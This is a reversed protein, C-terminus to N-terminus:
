ESVPIKVTFCTGKGLESNVGVTGGLLETLKKVIYLGLGAGEHLRTDSSDVQAFKEFILEKADDPIGIGTDTISFKMEHKEPFYHASIAVSGTDTFKIANNILNQLINRLKEADTKIVPLEPPYDWYLSIDKDRAWGFMVKLHSVFDGLDVEEITLSVEGTEIRTIELISSVLYLLDNSRCTITSLAKKMDHNVEGFMGDQIMATYGTVVTLPTRLEHSMVSLFQDKVRNSKELDRYLRANQVAIAAGNALQELLEVEGSAFERPQYSLARLTGLLEGAHSLLPIGLYGRIKLRHPLTSDAFFEEEKTLDYVMLPKRNEIFWQWRLNNGSIRGDDIGPDVGSAAVLQSTGSEIIRADVIDVRLFNRAKETIKKLLSTHNLVTIDQSLEKLLRQIEERRSLDANAKELEKAQKSTQEYLQANHIAIAAQGALMIFFQIEQNTFRREAKTYLCLAGLAKDRAILPVGLLSVLGHRVAFAPDKVQPNNQIDAIMLPAKNELVAKSFDAGANWQGKWEEEPLNRCTIPELEGTAPNFLRIATAAEYPLFLYIKEVLVDLVARLDLTSTIALDIEHLASLRRLNSQTEGFLRANELAVGIVNGITKLLNLEQPSFPIPRSTAVNLIGVVTGHGKLPVWIISRPEDRLPSERLPTKETDNIVLAEGTAFVRDSKGETTRRDVLAAIHHQTIGRHAALTVEGNTPNKLRIYGRERGTVELVKDLATEFVEELHLSQSTAMAIANLAGQERANRETEKFLRAKQVAIGMQNGLTELLNIQDSQFKRPMRSGLTIIGVVDDGSRVPIVVASQVGERKLTRLGSSGPVNEEVYPQKFTVARVTMQGTTADTIKSHHRNLNEPDQYGRSSVLELMEHAPDLLRINGIDFGGISFSRDLIAELIAELDSSSLIAQAVAHLIQLEKYHAQLKDEAHKRTTIDRIYGTFVPPGDLPIRTIALEVPFETGDARMATTEFRKEMVPGEGTSLYHALGRRHRERLAPPIILEAM